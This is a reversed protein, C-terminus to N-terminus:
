YEPPWDGRPPFDRWGRVHINGYTQLNGPWDQVANASIVQWIVTDLWVGATFYRSSDNFFPDRVYVWDWRKLGDSATTFNGAYPVVAHSANDIVAVFPVGHALSTAQRSGFEAWLVVPDDIRTSASDVFADRGSITLAAAGYEIQDITCGSTRWACGMLDGMTEPPYYSLGDYKRWMLVSTPACLLYTPQRYYPVNLNVNGTNAGPGFNIRSICGTMLVSGVSATLALCASGTRSRM